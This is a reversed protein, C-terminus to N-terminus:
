TMGLPAPRALWSDPVACDVRCKLQKAELPFVLYSTMSVGLVNIHKHAKPLPCIIVHQEGGMHRRRLSSDEVERRGSKRSLTERSPSMSSSLHFDLNGMM